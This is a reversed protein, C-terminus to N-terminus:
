AGSGFCWVWFVLGLSQPGLANENCHAQNGISTGVKLKSAKLLNACITRRKRAEELKQDHQEESFFRWYFKKEHSLPPKDFIWPNTAVFKSSWCRPLNWRRRSRWGIMTVSGSGIPSGSASTAANVPLPWSSIWECSRSKQFDRCWNSSRLM